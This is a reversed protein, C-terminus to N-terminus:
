TFGPLVWYFRTFGLSVWHFRNRFDFLDSPFYHSLIQLHSRIAILWDISDSGRSHPASPVCICRVAAVAVISWHRRKHNLPNKRSVHVLRHFFLFANVFLFFSLFFVPRSGKGLNQGNQRGFIAVVTALRGYFVSYFVDNLFYETFVRYAGNSITTSRLFEFRFVNAWIPPFKPWKAGDLPWFVFWKSVSSILFFSCDFSPKNIAM